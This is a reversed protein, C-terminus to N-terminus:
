GYLNIEQLHPKLINCWTAFSDEYKSWVINTIWDIFIIGDENHSHCPNDNLVTESNMHFWLVTQLYEKCSNGSNVKITRNDRTLKCSLHTCIKDLFAKNMMFNYLNNPDRQIHTPIDQKKVTIAGLTFQPNAAMMKITEKCIYEKHHSKLDSAKVELKPNFNFNRYFERVLRRPIAHHTIPHLLFAITIYRSSGGQRYPKDFKWGLDGSEDLLIQSHMVFPLPLFFPLGQSRHM